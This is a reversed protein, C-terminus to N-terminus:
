VGGSHVEAPLTKRATQAKKDKLWVGARLQVLAAEDAEGEVQVWYRKALKFRPDAIRAQLRGDDTLVVLGESDFDLLGAPYVNPVDVYDALTARGSKDTFQCLVNFPKNLLILM